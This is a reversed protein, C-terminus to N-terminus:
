TSGKKIFCKETDRVDYEKFIDAASVKSIVALMEAIQFTADKLYNYEHLRRIYKQDSSLRQSALM